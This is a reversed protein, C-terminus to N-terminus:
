LGSVRRVVLNDIVVERLRVRGITLRGIALAGIAVVGFALAGVALAGVAAGVVATEGSAAGTPLLGGGRRHTPQWQVLDEPADFPEAAAQDDQIQDSPMFFEKIM